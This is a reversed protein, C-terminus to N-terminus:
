SNLHNYITHMNLGCNNHKNLVNIQRNLILPLTETPDKAITTM